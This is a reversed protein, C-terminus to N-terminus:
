EVRIAVVDRVNRGGRKDGELAIGPTADAAHLVTGQAISADAVALLTIAFVRAAIM